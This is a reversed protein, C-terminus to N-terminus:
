ILTARAFFALTSILAIALIATGSIPKDMRVNRFADAYLFFCPVLLVNKGRRAVSMYCVLYHNM